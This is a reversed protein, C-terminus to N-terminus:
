ECSREKRSSPAPRPYKARMKVIDDGMNEFAQLECCYESGCYGEADMKGLKEVADLAENAGRNFAEDRERTLRAVEAELDRIIRCLREYDQHNRFKEMSLVFSADNSNV